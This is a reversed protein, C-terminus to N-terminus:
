DFLNVFSLSPFAPPLSVNGVNWRQIRWQHIAGKQEIGPSTCMPTPMSSPTVFVMVPSTAGLRSVFRDVLLESYKQIPLVLVIVAKMKLKSKTDKRKNSSVSLIQLLISSFKHTLSTKISFPPVVIPILPLAKMQVLKDIDSM